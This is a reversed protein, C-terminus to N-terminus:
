QAVLPKEVLVFTNGYDRYLTIGSGTDDVMYFLSQTVGPSYGSFLTGTTSVVSMNLTTVASENASLVTVGDAGTVSVTAGLSDVWDTVPAIAYNGTVSLTGTASSVTATGTCDTSTYENIAKVWNSGNVTVSDNRSGSFYPYCASQYVGSLTYGAVAPNSYTVVNIGQGGAGGTGGTGGAGGGTAPATIGRSFRDFAEGVVPGGDLSVRYLYMGATPNTNDFVYGFSMQTGVAPANAAMNVATFSYTLTAYFALDMQQLAPNIAAPAPVGAGMGDVWGSVQPNAGLSTSVSASYSSVITAAGSCGSGSAYSKNDYSVTNKYFVLMEQKDPGSGGNSTYCETTWIGTLSVSAGTNDTAGVVYLADADLAILGENFTLSSGNEIIAVSKNVTDVSVTLTDLVADFGTSDANFATSFIDFADADIGAGALQTRLNERVTGGAIVVQAESVETGSWGTYLTNLDNKGYALFMALNTTPTLNVTQGNKSAFSYLEPGTSPTVKLLYPPTMGPVDLTFSGDVATAISKEVGNADKVFVTGNIIPAGTAATGTLSTSAPPASDGGGSCGSVLVIASVAFFMSAIRKKM